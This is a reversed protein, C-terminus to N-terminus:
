LNQPPTIFFESKTWQNPLESLPILEFNQTTLTNSFIQIDDAEIQEYNELRAHVNVTSFPRVASGPELSDIRDPTSVMIPGYKGNKDTQGMAIVKNNSDAIMVAVNQLPLRAKSSYAYLQLYGTSLM